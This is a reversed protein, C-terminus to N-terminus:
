EVLQVIEEAQEYLIEESDLKFENGLWILSIKSVIGNEITVLSFNRLRDGALNKVIRPVCAANLYVIGEPSSVLRQRLVKKTHRLNHHMHGFAVLSINKGMALTQSIASEFDPDGYDGGITPWDKGCIDEPTKGLGTPGNHGIFIINNSEAYKVSELIKATSEEFSTIGYREAYFDGCKWESGGWSFPRSGIVTLDLQPFDLKDFGIHASGLLDLQQQVRDEKTRNYPSKSRGWETASYWADHNGMIVSYPTDLQSIEKVIEVAENGFDGVFLVLDVELHKLALADDPEWQEHVDGIVAIKIKKTSNKNIRM